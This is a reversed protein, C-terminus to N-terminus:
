SSRAGERPHVTASEDRRGVIAARRADTSVKPALPFICHPSEPLNSTEVVDIGPRVATRPVLV